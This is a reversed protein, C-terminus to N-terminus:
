VFMTQMLGKKLNILSKLKNEELLIQKNFISFLNSYKDQLDKSPLKIKISCLNNFTLTNRVGGEFKSHTQKTFLDSNFWELLFLNNAKTTFCEYLPSVVSIKNNDKLALSGVNLRSPNYAFVGKKIVYYNKKDKSAVIRDEFQVNQAIFGHKNSVSEVYEYRNEKNKINWKEIIEGLFIYPENISLLTKNKIGKKYLKLAEIKKEQLQIKKDLLQLTNAIKTQEKKDPINLLVNKFKDGYLHVISNGQALKALEKKKKGNIKYSIFRRDIDQLRIINLYRGLIVNNKLM